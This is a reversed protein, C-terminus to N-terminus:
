QSSQRPQEVRKLASRIALMVQALGIVSLVLAAYAGVTAWDAATLGYPAIAALAIFVAALIVRTPREWISVVGVESMGAAGARARGYEQLVTLFGAAVCVVAPAGIVWMAVLLAADSLRDVVSDLVYGWKSTRGSIVAVAGDLNDALGSVVCALVALWLWLSSGTSEEAQQSSLWGFLPVLLAILAGILTMGNPSIGMATLPRAVVYAFTLWWRTLRSGNPDVGGHLQSWRQFYEERTTTPEASGLPERAESM